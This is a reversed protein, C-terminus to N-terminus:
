IYGQGQRNHTGDYNLAFILVDVPVYRADPYQKSRHDIVKLKSKM